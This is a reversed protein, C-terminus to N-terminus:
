KRTQRWATRIFEGRTRLEALAQLDVGIPKAIAKWASRVREDLPEDLGVAHEPFAEFYQGIRHKGWKGYQAPEDDTTRDLAIFGGLSGWWQVAAFDDSDEPVDSTYITAAGTGHLRARIAAPRIESLPADSELALGLAEGAAQGLSMWIPELRLACFGVHSSSCAVPVALNDIKKPLLTGYPIQYPAARQYFEGTHRGGITPGEHDTGHCNPGYDGMAVADAHFVARAHNTDPARETDRQTFVYRGVMRRGERVYLQEPLHGNYTLEDRCLGWSRAEQQFKAPVAKDHQLFYLMGVNHRIHADFIRRRIAEDGDPWDNNLHPLSLRVISHSVDNIDYKGNPLKPTQRKYIGGRLNMFPDGFIRKVSENELLPLLALYDEQRYGDPKPVPAQNEVRDTMTLRFNYGQLQKDAQAPALSEGYEDRGERGVRYPVGAGAMLDGEYTADVFYDGRLTVEGDPTALTMAQIRRGKHQVSKLRHETLVTIGPLEDIMQRFVIHNVEPGAHTGFLSDKVQQSDNGFRKRYHQLVRRSFERFLGSRGEFTRFDPHTLGNTILGGVRKYPTVLAVSTKSDRRAVSIAAAIGGPTAGLVVVDSRKLDNESNPHGQPKTKEAKAPSAAVSVTWKRLRDLLEDAIDPRDSALNHKALEAPNDRLNFLEIRKQIRVLKWHKWRVAESGKGSNWYVTREPLACDRLLHSELSVGDSKSASVSLGALDLFTPSLDVTMSLERSVRNAQIRGPWWAIAPVRHGGEYLEHKQGRWPSNNSIRNEPIFPLGKQKVIGGNDSTFFVLTRKALKQAKIATLIEGVSADLEEIMGQVVPQVPGAAHPGLKGIADQYRNGPVRHAKDATTQWPFHIASHSVLLFFPKDRHEKIFRVSHKTILTTNHGEEHFAEENHWWDRRGYRDVRSLYDTAGHLHGVFEDFGHRTPGNTPKYGLHWKGMLGTAYGAGRLREAITIVDQPLGKAGEGLAGEDIGCRQQYQGTLIAARTPSCNAANSHFDTFRLGERAMRDLHPTRNLKNGYAGIDAYGLDDALILVINPKEGSPEPNDANASFATLTFAAAAATIITRVNM